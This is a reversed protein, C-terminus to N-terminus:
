TKQPCSRFLQRQKLADASYRWRAVRGQIPIRMLGQKEPASLSLASALASFWPASRKLRSMLRRTNKVVAGSKGM